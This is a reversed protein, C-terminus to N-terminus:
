TGDVSVRDVRHSPLVLNGNLEMIYDGVRLLDRLDTENEPMRPFRVAAMGEHNTHHFDTGCIVPQGHERAFRSGFGNNSDINPHMNFAEIGDSLEGLYVPEGIPNDRYPHATFVISKKREPTGIFSRYGAKVYSLLQPTDAPEVGYVLFDYTKMDCFTLEMGYFVRMGVAEAAACARHYDEVHYRIQEDTYNLRLHNTIVVADYHRAHYVKIMQEPEIEGCYSAPKTHAHMEMKVPYATRLWLAIEEVTQNNM